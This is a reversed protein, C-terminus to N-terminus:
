AAQLAEEILGSFRHERYMGDLGNSRVDRSTLNEVPKHLKWAVWRVAAIRHREDQFFLNPTQRLEWPYIKKDEFSRSHSQAIMEQSSYALGAEALAVYISHHYKAEILVALGNKMFDDIGIELPGKSTKWLLWKVAAARHEAKDFLNAPTTKMEWPYIKGTEFGTEAHKLFETEPYAICMDVFARYPTNEYYRGLIGSLGAVCFEAWEMKKPDEFGEVFKKLVAVRAPHDSWDAHWRRTAHGKDFLESAKGERILANVKEVVVARASKKSMGREPALEDYGSKTIKYQGHEMLFISLWRRFEATKDLKGPDSLYKQLRPSSTFDAATHKRAGLQWSQM